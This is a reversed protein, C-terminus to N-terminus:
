RDVLGRIPEPATEYGVSVVADLRGDADLDCLQGGWAWDAREVLLAPPELGSVREFVGGENRLLSNGRAMAAFREDLGPIAATMRRGAKSFMNSVYLDLDGDVDVDGFSVGMGFGVDEARAQATVDTFHGGDNRLLTNPAFDNASYLDPDGDDDIDGFAASYTHRLVAAGRSDDRVLRGHGQNHFLVNPPGASDRYPHASSLASRLAAVDAAPLFRGLPDDPVRSGDWQKRLMEQAYTAVYVDLLGDGDVDAAALSSVLAPLGEAAVAGKEVFRDGDHELLRSPSLGRGLLADPDGDNDLDVFLAASTDGELDLGWAGAREDLVGDGRNVFLQNRGKRVTLYLDDDGDGELDVVALGPHRDFAPRSWDPHPPEFAPDVYSALVDKQHESTRARARAGEDPLLEDLAERFLRRPARETRVSVVKFRTIEWRSDLDARDSARWELELALHVALLEGDLTRVLANCGVDGAFAAGGDLLEGRVLGFGGQEVRETSALLAEFLMLEDVAVTRTPRGALQLEGVRTPGVERDPPVPLELDVVEVQAAFEWRGAEGPLELDHLARTLPRLTQKLALLRDETAIMQRVADRRERDPVIVGAAMLNAVILPVSAVAAVLWPARLRPRMLFVALGLGILLGQVALILGRSTPSEILGDRVLTSEIAARNLLVGLALLLAGLSVGRLRSAPDIVPLM